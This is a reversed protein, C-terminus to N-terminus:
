TGNSLPFETFLALLKSRCLPFTVEMLTEQEASTFPSLVYDAVDDKSAPRGVGIQLRPFQDSRLKEIISTVGNHGRASGGRKIKVKGFPQDIDDQVVILHAAERDFHRLAEKVPAGILNMYGEPKLVLHGEYNSHFGFSTKTYKQVLSDLFAKGVNHRTGTYSASNGLGVVLAPGSKRLM